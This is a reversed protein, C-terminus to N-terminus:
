KPILGTTSKVSSQSEVSGVSGQRSLGLALNQQARERARAQRVERERRYSEAEESQMLMFPTVGSKSNYAMEQDQDNRRPTNFEPLSQMDPFVHRIIIILLVNIFGTLNFIVAAFVTAGFPPPTPGMFETLRTITIPILIITYAVPFWVMRQALKLMTSDILDRAFGLRWSEDSSIFQLKWKGQHHVLNGRVRLLVITNLIFALTASLFELFYELLIQPEPYSSTIWCWRGSIGFYPGSEPKEIAAPGIFVIFAVAFWGGALTLWLGLRTVSTRLFLINFLHLSIMFSWLATSINGAQKIAGQATCFSGNSLGNKVVWRLNMTTGISQIVNALLLSVLYEFLHTRFAKTTSILYRMVYLVSCISLLGAVALVIVGSREWPEYWVDNM